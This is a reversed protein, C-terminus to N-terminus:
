KTMRYFQWVKWGSLNTPWSYKVIQTQWIIATYIAGKKCIQEVHYRVDQALDPYGRRDYHNNNSVGPKLWGIGRSGVGCDAWREIWVM